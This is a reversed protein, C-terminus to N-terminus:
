MYILALQCEIVKMPRGEMVKTLPEVSTVKVQSTVPKNIGLYRQMSYQEGNKYVDRKM